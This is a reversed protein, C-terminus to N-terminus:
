GATRGHVMVVPSGTPRRFLDLISATGSLFCGIRDWIGGHTMIWRVDGTLSQHRVAMRLSGEYVAVTAQVGKSRLAEVAPAIKKEARQVSAHTSYINVLQEQAAYADPIGEEARAFLTLIRRTSEVPFRMLFNVKMGPQAVREVCSVIDEIRDDL